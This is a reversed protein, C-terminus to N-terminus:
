SECLIHSISLGNKLVDKSSHLTHFIIGILREEGIPSMSITFSCTCQWRKIM